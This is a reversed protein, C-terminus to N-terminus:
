AFLESPVIRLGDFIASRVPQEEQFLARQVVRGDGLTLVVIQRLAVHVLWCERVGYRAYWTVKEALRGIRPNPSLVEVVLDPAAMVKRDIIGRREASVFLVDPQVVLDADQDLVVDMPAPLVEGIRRERAFRDLAVTLDRVVRQHSVGPSERVHMVGYALEAPQVTEPTEFYERTTM